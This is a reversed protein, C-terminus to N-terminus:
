QFNEYNRSTVTTQLLIPTNESILITFIFTAMEPKTNENSLFVDWSEINGQIFDEDGHLRHFYKNADLYFGTSEKKQNLLTACFEKATEPCLPDDKSPTHLAYNSGTRWERLTLEMLTRTNNLTQQTPIIVQQAKIVSIFVGLAIFVVISFIGMAVIIELLTFGAYPLNNKKM